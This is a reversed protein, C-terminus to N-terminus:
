DYEPHNRLSDYLEQEGHEGTFIKHVSTFIPFKETIEHIELMEFVDQATPPGQASQGKLLEQEVIHLPKDSKIFAEAVKRNRGGYCTTILDAVGCSEFYTHHSSPYFHEVFKKTELLGLRIIASKVNYAWGLGDAFGAACAVINKLAGCLEVAEYDTTVRIRFNPTNFLMKLEEGNELSKCGITAECFKGDAVEGALNAGMLVSCEVGLAKEIDESILQMRIVDNESTSSIGKTLSVAHADDRLNGRLESCIQPIGQHPVVLILIHASECADLLSSTAIVNSPIRRGPLYKPNEHTANITEAISPTTDGFKRSDRCWMSVIPQFVDDQAKVTKGVVCAIASGWNGGGVIAIKKRSDGRLEDSNNNFCYDFNQCPM